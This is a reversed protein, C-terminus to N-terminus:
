ALICSFISGLSELCNNCFSVMGITGHVLNDGQDITQIYLKKSLITNILIDHHKLIGASSTFTEEGRRNSYEVGTM